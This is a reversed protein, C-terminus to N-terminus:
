NKERLLERFFARADESEWNRGGTAKGIFEGKRDILYTLPLSWAGYEDSVKGDSDLVSKFSLGVERFFEQVLKKDERSDVAVIELGQDGFERHLKEMLPMEDRCPVCWTAWFNLFVVKGRFDKLNSRKGSIDKLSFEPAQLAKGPKEINLREFYGRAPPSVPKKAEFLVYTLLSFAALAGLLLLPRLRFSEGRHDETGIKESETM